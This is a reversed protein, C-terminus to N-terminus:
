KIRPADTGLGSSRHFTDLRQNLFDLVSHLGLRFLRLPQFEDLLDLGMVQIKPFHGFAGQLRGPGTQVVTLLVFKNFDEAVQHLGVNGFM